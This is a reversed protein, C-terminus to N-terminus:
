WHGEILFLDSVECTLQSTAYDFCLCYNLTQFTFHDYVIAKINRTDHTSFDLYFDSGNNKIWTEGSLLVFPM